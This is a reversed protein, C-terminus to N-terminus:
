ALMEGLQRIGTLPSRFEHSVTSVFESKMRAVELERRVTRAIFYGGSALSLVVLLLMASYLNRNRNLAAYFGAAERPEVEISWCRVPEDLSRNTKIGYPDQQTSYLVESNAFMRVIRGDSDPANLVHPWSQSNLFDLSVVVVAFPANRRFAVDTEGGSAFVRSS